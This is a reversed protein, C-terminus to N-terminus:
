FLTRLFKLPLTISFNLDNNKTKILYVPLNSHKVYNGTQLDKELTHFVYSSLSAIHFKIFSSVYFSRPQVPTWCTKGIRLLPIENCHTFCQAVSAM